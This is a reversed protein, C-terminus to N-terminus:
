SCKMGANVEDINGGESMLSKGGSLSDLPEGSCVPDNKVPVVELASNSEGPEPLERQSLEKENFKVDSIDEQSTGDESTPEDSWDLSAPVDVVKEPAIECADSISCSQLSVDSSSPIQQADTQVKINSQSEIVANDIDLESSEIESAPSLVQVGRDRPPSSSEWDSNNAHDIDDDDDEPVDDASSGEVHVAQYSHNTVETSIQGESATALSIESSSSECSENHDKAAEFNDDDQPLAVEEQVNVVETDEEQVSSFAVNDGNKSSERSHVTGDNGVGSTDAIFSPAEVSAAGAATSPVSIDVEKEDHNVNKPKAEM